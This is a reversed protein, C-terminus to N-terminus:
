LAGEGRQPSSPSHQCRKLGFECLWELYGLPPLPRDDPEAARMDSTNATGLDQSARYTLVLLNVAITM